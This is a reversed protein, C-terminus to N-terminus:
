LRGQSMHRLIVILGQESRERSDGARAGNMLMRTRLGYLALTTGHEYYYDCVMNDQGNRVVYM